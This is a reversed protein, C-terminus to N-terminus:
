ANNYLMDCFNIDANFIIWIFRYKKIIKDGKKSNNKFYYSNTDTKIGIRIVQATKEYKCRKVTYILIAQISSGRTDPDCWQLMISIVCRLMVSSHLDTDFSSEITFFYHTM